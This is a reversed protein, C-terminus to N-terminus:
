RLSNGQVNQMFIARQITCTYQKILSLTSYTQNMSNLWTSSTISLMQKSVSTVYCRSPIVIEVFTYKVSTDNNEISRTSPFHIFVFILMSASAIM